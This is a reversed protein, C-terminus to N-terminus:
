ARRRRAALAAVGLLAWPWASQVHTARCGCGGDGAGDADANVAGSSGAVGSSAGDGSGSGGAGSSGSSGGSSSSSLDPAGFEFAGVDAAAGVFGDNIGPLPVARDVVLSTASPRLTADLGPDGFAGHADQQAGSQWAAFTDYRDNATGNWWSFLKTTDTSFWVDGDFSPQEAGHNFATMLAGGAPASLVNNRWVVDHIPVNHEGEVAFWLNLLAGPTERVFTNQYVFVHRTAVNSNASTNLKFFGELMNGTAVNRLLFYPGPLAPAASFANQADRVVNRYIRANVCIGDLELGDDRAREFTNDYIELDHNTWPGSGLLALVPQGDALDHGTDEDGCPSANDTHGHVRNRRIVTGAGPNNDQKIGYYTQRACATNSAGQCADQELDAIENDEILHFGGLLVGGSFEASKSVLVNDHGNDHVFCRRVTLHSSARFYVGQGSQDNGGNRIEFGEIVVFSSDKLMLAHGSGGGDIVPLANPDDARLVIPAADTGHVGDADVSGYTGALVRIEDGALAHALAYTPTAYPTERTAGAAASDVGGPGVWRVRLPTPAAREARTHLTVERMAPTGDPDTLTVRLQYDTDPTLGFLSTAFAHPEFSTFPHAARFDADGPGKIALALSEDGSAGTLKVIVGATEFSPHLLPAEITAAAAIGSWTSVVLAGLAVSARSSHRM